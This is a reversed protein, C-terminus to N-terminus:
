GRSHRAAASEASRSSRGLTSLCLSSPTQNGPGTGAPPARPNVNLACSVLKVVSKRYFVYLHYFKAGGIYPAYIAAFVLHGPEGRSAPV